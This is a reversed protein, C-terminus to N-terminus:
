AYENGNYRHHCQGPLGSIAAELDDTRLRGDHLYEQGASRVTGLELADNVRETWLEAPTHRENQCIYAGGLPTGEGGAM